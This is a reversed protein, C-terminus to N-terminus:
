PAPYGSATTPVPTAQVPPTITPVVADMSTTFQRGPIDFFFTDGQKSKLVLKNGIQETVHISGSKKPAAICVLPITDTKYCLEGQDPDDKLYGAFVTVYIGDVINQWGNEDVVDHRSILIPDNIVGTLRIDHLPVPTGIFGPQKSILLTPAIKAITTQLMYLNNLKEEIKTKAAQDNKLDSLEKQLLKIQNVIPDGPTITSTPSKEGSFNANALQNSVLLIGFLLMTIISGAIINRKSFVTKM